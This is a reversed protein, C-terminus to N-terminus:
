KVIKVNSKDDIIHKVFPPAPYGSEKNYVACQKFPCPSERWAYRIASVMMDKPQLCIQSYNFTVSTDDHSVMPLHFWTINESVEALASSKDLTICSVEFGTTSRIDLVTQKNDYDIEITGDAVWITILSPLPGNFKSFETQNYAVALGATCLRMSVDEKDRPHIGTYPSTFDPLDMAVAMFTNNMRDNPVYGYDATQHWRIDTFGTTITDNDRWPALQVFGFPFVPDTQGGSAQHFRDRWDDIMAPFTCNYQNMTPSGANAEGQYWLAGYVTMNVFPRMMANWLVSAANPNVSSMKRAESVGCKKLVNPASWAEVRTGGYSSAILGIPYKLHSSLYKVYLWCVASFGSVDSGAVTDASPVSWPQSINLLDYEEVPSGGLAVTFVRINPYNVAEAEEETANFAMSLTFQMNSQGSCIWVDGFLVDTLNISGESSTATINYPGGADIAPLQVSWVPTSPIPGIFSTTNVQGKGSITLTITEGEKSAYGWITTRQPAKQLVMHDGYYSAFSFPKVATTGEVSVVLVVLLVIWGARGM